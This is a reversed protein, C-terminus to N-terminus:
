RSWGTITALGAYVDASVGRVPAHGPRWESVPVVFRVRGCDDERWVRFQPFDECLAALQDHSPPAAEGDGSRPQM